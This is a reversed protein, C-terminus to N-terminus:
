HSPYASFIQFDIKQVGWAGWLFIYVLVLLILTNWAGSASIPAVGLVVSLLAWHHYIARRHTGEAALFLSSFLFSLLLPATILLYFFKFGSEPPSPTVVLILCTLFPFFLLFQFIRAGPYLRFFTSFGGPLAEVEGRMGNLRRATRAMIAGYIFASLALQWTLLFAYAYTAPPAQPYGLGLDAIWAGIRDGFNRIEVSHASQPLPLTTWVDRPFVWLGVFLVVLSAKLIFPGYVLPNFLRRLM